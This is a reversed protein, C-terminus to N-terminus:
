QSDPKMSYRQQRVPKAEPATPLMPKQVKKNASNRRGEPVFSWTYRGCLLLRNLGLPLLNLVAIM